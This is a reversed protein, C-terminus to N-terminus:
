DIHKAWCFSPPLCRVSHVKQRTNIEELKEAKYLANGNTRRQELKHFAIFSDIPREKM